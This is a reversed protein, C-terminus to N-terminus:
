KGNIRFDFDAIVETFDVDTGAFKKTVVPLMEEGWRRLRRLNDKTTYNPAPIRNVWRDLAKQAPRALRSQEGASLTASHLFEIAPEVHGEELEAALLDLFKPSSRLRATAAERVERSQHRNAGNLLEKFNKEPDLAAVHALVEGPSKRAAEMRWALNRLGDKGKRVIWFGCLILSAVLSVVTFITWPWRLWQMSSGFTLKPNLSLVVLLVTSFHVGYIVPTYLFRPTFGPRLYLAIFVFSVVGLAFTAGVAFAYLAPRGLRLWDFGGNATGCLLAGMMLLWVPVLVLLIPTVWQDNSTERRAWESLLNQLPLLFVLTSIAVCINGIIQSPSM